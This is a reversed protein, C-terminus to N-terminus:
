GAPPAKPKAAARKRAGASSRRKASAGAKAAPRAAKPKSATKKAVPKPTATVATGGGEDAWKGSLVRQAADAVAEAIIAGLKTASSMMNTAAQSATDAADLGADSFRALFGLEVSKCPYTM